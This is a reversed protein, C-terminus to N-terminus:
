NVSISGHILTTEVHASEVSLTLEGVGISINMNALELVVESMTSSDVSIFYVSSGQLSCPFFIHTFSSHHSGVSITVELDLVM